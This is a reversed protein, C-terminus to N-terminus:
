CVYTVAVKDSMKQSVSLLMLMNDCETIGMAYLDSLVNACAIRGQSVSVYFMGIFITTLGGFSLYSLIGNCLSLSKIGFIPGPYM